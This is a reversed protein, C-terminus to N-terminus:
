RLLEVTDGVRIQGSLVRGRAYHDDFIETIEIKGAETRIIPVAAKQVPNRDNHFVNLQQGVAAGDAKGICVIPGNPDQDVVHGRMLVGHYVAQGTSCGGVGAMVVLIVSLGFVRFETKM